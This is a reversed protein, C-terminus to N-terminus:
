FRLYFSEFMFHSACTAFKTRLKRNRLFDDSHLVLALETSGCVNSRKQKGEIPSPPLNRSLTRYLFPPLTLPSSPTSLLFSSFSCFPARFTSSGSADDSGRRAPEGSASGEGGRKERVRRCVRGQVVGSSSELCEECEGGKGREKSRTERM